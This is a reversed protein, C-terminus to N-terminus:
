LSAMEKNFARVLKCKIKYTSILRWGFHEGLDEDIPMALDLWHVKESYQVVDDFMAPMDSRCM